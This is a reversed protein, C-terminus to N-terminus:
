LDTNLRGQEENTPQNNYSNRLINLEFKRKVTEAQPKIVQADIIM